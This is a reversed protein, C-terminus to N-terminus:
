LFGRQTLLYVKLSISIIIRMFLIIFVSTIIIKRKVSFTLKRVRPRAKTSITASPHLVNFPRLISTWEKKRHKFFHKNVIQLMVWPRPRRIWIKVLFGVSDFQLHIRQSKSFQCLDLHLFFRRFLMSKRNSADYFDVALSGFVESVAMVEAGHEYPDSHRRVEVLVM